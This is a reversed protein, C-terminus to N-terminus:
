HIFSELVRLVRLTRYVINRFKIITDALLSPEPARGENSAFVFYPHPHLNLDIDLGGPYALM